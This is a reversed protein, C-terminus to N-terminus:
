FIEELAMRAFSLITQRAISFDIYAITVSKRNQVTAEVEPVFKRM